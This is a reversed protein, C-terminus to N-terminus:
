VLLSENTAFRESNAEVVCTDKGGLLCNNGDKYSKTVAQHLIDLVQVPERQLLNCFQLLLVAQVFDLCSSYWFPFLQDLAVEVPNRDDNYSAFVTTKFSGAQEALRPCM